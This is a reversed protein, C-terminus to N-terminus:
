KAGLESREVGGLPDGLRAALERGVRLALVVGRQRQELPVDVRRHQQIPQLDAVRIDDRRQHELELQDLPRPGVDRCMTSGSPSSSRIRRAALVSSPRPTASSVRSPSSCRRARWPRPARGRCRPRGVTSLVRSRSSRSVNASRTRARQARVLAHREVRGPVDDGVDDYKPVM